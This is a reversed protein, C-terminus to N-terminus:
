LSPWIIEIVFGNEAAPRRLKAGHRTAIAKVLALGLGHGALHSDRAGRTFREFVADGLGDPAGPGTDAVRMVHGEDRTELSLTVRDGPRTFKIANDLLNSLLQAVLNRDGLMSAGPGIRAEMILGKEEGSPAYLGYIEESVQSLDLPALGPGDGSQAEARAIDLLSDFVRITNRMEAKAGEVAPDDAPLKSLRNQMRNLPTRLEHAIADGLQRTARSLAEIRDLMRHVHRELLGFEDTSRAGELRAAVDGAAVRDALGNLRDIRRMVLRAALGGSALAALAIGAIVWAIVRRMDALTRELPGIPHALLMPFGGRLLRAAGQYTAGGHEFVQLAEASFGQGLVPVGDPWNDLNGALKGGSKDQLLYLAGDPDGSATRFEMAQRVAIVRRQDYLAALGELDSRVLSMHQDRLTAEAMRYQAALGLVSILLIAGAVGLTLRLSASARLLRRM